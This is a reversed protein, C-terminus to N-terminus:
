NADQKPIKIYPGFLVIMEELWALRQAATTQRVTTLIQEKEHEQWTVPWDVETPRTKDESM